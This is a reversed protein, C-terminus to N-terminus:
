CTDGGVLSRTEGMSERFLAKGSEAVSSRRIAGAPAVPTANMVGVTLESIVKDIEDDIEDDLDSTQDMADEMVEEILGAKEMEYALSAMSDQVESISLLKSMSAMTKSSVQLADAMRLQATQYRLDLIVSNMHAKAVHIRHKAHNAKVISRALPKIAEYEGKKALLKIDRQFKMQEREIGRIQRDLLRSEKRIERTWEKLQEKPDKKELGVAQFFRTTRSERNPM